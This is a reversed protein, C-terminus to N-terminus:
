AALPGQTITPTVSPFAEMPMEGKGSTGWRSPGLPATLTKEVSWGRQLRVRITQAKLGTETAWQEVSLTRGDHEIHRVRGHPRAQVPVTLAREIPWGLQGVRALLTAFPIGTEEAWDTLTQERGGFVFRRNTSKNRCNESPTAWRCNGPGYGRNNDIRDIQHTPSPRPGMDRIFADYDDRWVQAVHIGRAGYRAYSRSKPNHCRDKMGLWVGFEPESRHAAESRMRNHAQMGDYKACGCSKSNGRRLSGARVQVVTGCECKCTWHLIGSRSEGPELATLKGFKQGTLDIRATM